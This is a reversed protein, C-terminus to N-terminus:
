VAPIRLSIQPKAPPVNNSIEHQPEKISLFIIININSLFFCLFNASSLCILSRSRQGRCTGCVETTSHEVQPQPTVPELRAPPM